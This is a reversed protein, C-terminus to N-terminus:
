SASLIEVALTPKSDLQIRLTGLHLMVRGPFEADETVKQIPAVDLDARIVGKADLLVAMLRQHAAEINVKLRAGDEGDM